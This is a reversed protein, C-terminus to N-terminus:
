VPKGLDRAVQSTRRPPQWGEGVPGNGETARSELGSQSAQLKTVGRPGRALGWDSGAVGLHCRRWAIVGVRNPSKGNREGSSLSDRNSEKGLLYQSTEIGKTGEEQGIHEPLPSMANGIGPKGM